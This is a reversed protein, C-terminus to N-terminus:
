RARGAVELDASVAPDPRRPLPARATVRWRVDKGHSPPGTEPLPLEVRWVWRRTGERAAALEPGEIRRVEEHVTARHKVSSNGTSVVWVEEGELAVALAAVVDPAADLVVEVAVSEGFRWARRPLRVELRDVASGALALLGLAVASIVPPALLAVLAPVPVTGTAAWVAALVALDALTFVALFRRFRRYGGWAEVVPAAAPEPRPGPRVLVEAEAGPDRRRARDIVVEAIWRSRYWEGEFTPWADEPVPLAFEAEAGAGAPLEVETGAGAKLHKTRHRLAVRAGRADPWGDLGTVRGRVTGGAEVEPTEVVIELDM